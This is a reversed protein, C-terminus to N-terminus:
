LTEIRDIIFTFPVTNVGDKIFEMEIFLGTDKRGVTITGPSGKYDVKYQISGNQSQDPWSSQSSVITYSYIKTGQKQNWEITNQGDITFRSELTFESQASKNIARTSYCVTKQQLTDQAMSPVHLVMLFSIILLYRM